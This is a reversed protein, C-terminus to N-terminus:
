AIPPRDLSEISAQEYHSVNGSDWVPKPSEFIFKFVLIKTAAHCEAFKFSKESTGSTDSNQDDVPSKDKEAAISIAPPNLDIRKAEAMRVFPTSPSSLEILLCILDIIPIIRRWNV